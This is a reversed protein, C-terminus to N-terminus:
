AADTQVLVHPSDRKGLVGIVDSTRDTSVFEFMGKVPYSAVCARPNGTDMLIELGSGM